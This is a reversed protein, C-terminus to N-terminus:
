NDASTQLIARAEERVAPDPDGKLAWEAISSARKSDLQGLAWLCHSRILAEADNEIREILRPVAATAGVNAAAV